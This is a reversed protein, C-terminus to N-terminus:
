NGEKALLRLAPENLRFAACTEEITPYDSFLFLHRITRFRGAPAWRDNFSELISM